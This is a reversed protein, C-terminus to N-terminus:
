KVMKIVHNTNSVLDWLWDKSITVVKVNVNHYPVTKTRNSDMDFKKTLKLNTSKNVVNQFFDSSFISVWFNSLNVLDFNLQWDSIVHVGPVLQATRCYIGTDHIYM